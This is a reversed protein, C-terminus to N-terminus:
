SRKIVPGKDFWISVESKPINPISLGFKVFAEACNITLLNHYTTEGLVFLSRRVDYIRHMNEDNHEREELYIHLDRLIYDEPLSNEVFIKNLYQRRIFQHNWFGHVVWGKNKFVFVDDVLMNTKLDYHKNTLIRVADLPTEAHRSLHKYIKLFDPVNRFIDVYRDDGCWYVFEDDNIGELLSRM